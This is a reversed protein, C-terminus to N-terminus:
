FHRELEAAERQDRCQVCYTTRCDCSQEQEMLEDMLRNQWLREAEDEDRQQRAEEWLDWDAIDDVPLGGDGSIGDFDLIRKM